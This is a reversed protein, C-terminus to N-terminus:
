IKQIEAISSDRSITRFESMELESKQFKSATSIFSNLTRRPDKHTIFFTSDGKISSSYQQYWTSQSEQFIKLRFLYSFPSKIGLVELPKDLQDHFEKETLISLANRLILCRIIPGAQDHIFTMQLESNKYTKNAGM